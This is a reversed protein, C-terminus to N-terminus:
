LVGEMSNQNSYSCTSKFWSLFPLLKKATPPLRERKSTLTVYLEGTRCHLKDQCKSACYTRVLQLSVQGQSMIWFVKEYYKWKCQFCGFQRKENWGKQDRTGLSLNQKATNGLAAQLSFVLYCSAIWPKEGTAVRSCALVWQDKM